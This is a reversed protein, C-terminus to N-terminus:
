NQIGASQGAALRSRLGHRDSILEGFPGMSVMLKKESTRRSFQNLCRSGALFLRSRLLTERDDAGQDVRGIIM